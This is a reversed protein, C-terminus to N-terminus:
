IQCSCSSAQFTATRSARLTCMADMMSVESWARVQSWALCSLKNRSTLQMAPECSSAMPEAMISPFEYFSIQKSVGATAFRRNEADFEISSLIAVSRRSTTQPIQAVVQLGCLCGDTESELVATFCTLDQAAQTHLHMPCLDDFSADVNSVSLSTDASSHWM